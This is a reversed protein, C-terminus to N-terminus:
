KVLPRSPAPRPTLPLYDFLHTIALHVTKKNPIAAGAAKAAAIIEGYKMRLVQHQVLWLLDRPNVPISGPVWGAAQYQTEVATMYKKVRALYEKGTKEAPDYTPPTATPAPDWYSLSCTASFPLRGAHDDWGSAQRLYRLAHNLIWDDPALLHSAEGWSVLATVLAESHPIIRLMNLSFAGTWGASALTNALTRHAPGVDRVLDDVVHPAVADVARLFDFRARLLSRDERPKGSRFPRAPGPM